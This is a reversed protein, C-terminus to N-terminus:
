TTCFDIPVLFLDPNIYDQLVPDQETCTFFFGTEDLQCAETKKLKDGGIVLVSLEDFITNASTRFGVTNGALSWKRTVIDFRSISRTVSDGDAFTVGIGGFVYFADNIFVIKIGYIGDYGTLVGYDDEAVVWSGITDNLTEVKVNDTSGVAM